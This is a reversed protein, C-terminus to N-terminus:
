MKVTFNSLKYHYFCSVGGHQDREAFSRDDVGLSVDTTDMPETSYPLTDDFNFAATFLLFDIIIFLKLILIIFCSFVFVIFIHVKCDGKM